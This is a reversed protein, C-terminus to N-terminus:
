SRGRTARACTTALVCLSTISWQLFTRSIGPNSSAIRTRLKSDLKANSLWCRSLAKSRLLTLFHTASDSPAPPVNPQSVVFSRLVYWTEFWGPKERVGLM